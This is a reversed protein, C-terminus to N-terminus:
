HKRTKKDFATEWATYSILLNNMIKSPTKMKWCRSKFLKAAIM